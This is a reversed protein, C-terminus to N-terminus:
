QFAIRKISYLFLLPLLITKLVFLTMLIILNLVSDNVSEYIGEIINKPTSVVTKMADWKKSISEIFGQEETNNSIEVSQILEAQSSINDAAYTFQTEYTTIEDIIYIKDVLLTLSSSILIAFRLAFLMKFLNFLPSQYKKFARAYLSFLYVLASSTLLINFFNSSMMILLFKQLGLSAISFIMIEKFINIIDSASNLMQGIDVSAIGASFELSKVVSISSDLLSASGYTVVARLLSQDITDAAIDDFFRLWGISVLFIIAITQITLKLNNEM